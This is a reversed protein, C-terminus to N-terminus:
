KQPPTSAARRVWRALTAYFLDPEIPKTIHDNMGAALSKQHDDSMAHATMAVVPVPGGGDRRPVRLDRIRRTAELGDMVPMQIDMLVLDFDEEALAQLAEQGNAAIRVAIHVQELLSQGILQNIDNDEVLLVYAGALGGMDAGHSGDEAHERPLEDRQFALRFSFASGRGLESEMHLEGGMLEVLQRSIALGLGTGGFRRTISGDAQSFPQFLHQQAEEDVGIGTDSVTFELCLTGKYDNVREVGFTVSGKDTFKIANGLLNILVQRLRVSDGLLVDHHTPVESFDLNLEIGKERAKFRMIDMIGVVLERLSFPATEMTLRHAEIKSFDLIDNIVGLLGTAATHIRRFSDRQRDPLSPEKLALYALGLIANMPTRIEHSMNALFTSKTHSASEAAEKALLLEARERDLAERTRKLERLDRVYGAVRAKDQVIVRILTIEVPLPEGKATHHMWEFRVYGESFARSLLERAMEQSPRGCPQFPPSLTFFSECYQAKEKLGHLRVMEANCDITQFDPSTLICGLPSADFMARMRENAEEVESHIAKKRCQGCAYLPLVEGNEPVVTVPRRMEIAMATVGEIHGEPSRLPLVQVEFSDFKGLFTVVSERGERLALGYAARQEPMDAFIEDMHRGLVFRGPGGMDFAPGHLAQLLGQKDFGIISIGSRRALAEHMPSHVPAYFPSPADSSSM